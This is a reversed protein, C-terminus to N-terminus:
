SYDSLKYHIIPVITVPILILAARQPIYSCCMVKALPNLEQICIQFNNANHQHTLEWCKLAFVNRHYCYNINCKLTNLFFVHLSLLQQSPAPTICTNSVPTIIVSNYIIVYIIILLMAYQIFAMYM